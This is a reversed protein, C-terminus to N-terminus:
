PTRAVRFGLISSSYDPNGFVRVSARCYFSVNGWAGGRL